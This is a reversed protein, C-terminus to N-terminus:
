KAAPKAPAAPETKKVPATEPVKIEVKPKPESPKVEVAPKADDSPKIDVSIPPTTATVPEHKVPAPTPAHGAPAAPPEGAAAPAAGEAPKDKMFESRNKLLPDVSYKALVFVKGALAKEKTLKEKNKALDDAFKKEAEERAKKKEDETRKDDAVPAPEPMKEPFAGEVEFSVYYEDSAGANPDTGAPKEAQNGVKITYKFGDFTEIVATRAPNELGAKAKQEATAVDNFTASAFASASNGGKAPDFEEGPKAEKLKLENVDTGEKERFISWNDEPKASTVTVSKPKEVKIFDTKDLWDKNTIANMFYDFAEKIVFVKDKVADNKIYQSQSNSFSGPGAAGPPNKGIVFAALASGDAKKLTVQTGTEDEKGGTGPKQLKFRSLYKDSVDTKVDNAEMIVAKSVLKAINDANAPFGDRGVVVWKGDKIELTVEEKGSLVVTSVDEPKVGPLIKQGVAEDQADGEINKNKLVAVIAVALIGILIL